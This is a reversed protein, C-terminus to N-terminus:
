STVEFLEEDKNQLFCPGLCNHCCRPWFNLLLVEVVVLVLAEVVVVVVVLENRLVFSEELNM